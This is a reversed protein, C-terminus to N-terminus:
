VLTYGGDITVTQGTIYASQESALFVVLHAVDEPTGLRKAPITAIRRARAEVDHRTSDMETDIFGPAVANVRIGWEALELALAGTMGRVASKATAYAALGRFHVAGAMSAVNVIAGRVGTAVWRRAIEQALGFAAKVHVDLLRELHSPDTELLPGGLEIGANNVLVRPFGASSSELEALIRSRDRESTVDCSLDLAYRGIRGIEEAVIQAKQRQLDAIGVSAGEHAFALAIGRGIGQAAGTVLVTRNAFLGNM